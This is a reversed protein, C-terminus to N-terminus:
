DTTCQILPVKIELDLLFPGNKALGSAWCVLSECHAGVPHSSKPLPILNVLLTGLLVVDLALAVNTSVTLVQLVM